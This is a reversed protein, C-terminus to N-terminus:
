PTLAQTFSAHDLDLQIQKTPVSDDLIATIGYPASLVQHLIDQANGRLHFTSQIQAPALEILGAGTLEADPAIEIVAPEQETDLSQIHEQVFPNDPDLSLAQQLQQKAATTKGSQQDQNATHIMNGVWQQRALEYAALYLGNTPDLLHAKAFLTLAQSSDQAKLAHTGKRYYERAKAM